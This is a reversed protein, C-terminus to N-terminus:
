PPSQGFAGNGIYSNNDTNAYTDPRMGNDHNSAMPMTTPMNGNNSSSQTGNGTTACGALALACAVLATRLILRPSAKM